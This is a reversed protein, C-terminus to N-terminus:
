QQRDGPSGFTLRASRRLTALHPELTALKLSVGVSDERGSLAVDLMVNGFEASYHTM